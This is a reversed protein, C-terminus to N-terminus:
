HGEEQMAVALSDAGSQLAMKGVELAGHGYGDDKVVAMLSRLFGIKRGVQSVNHRIAGLDVLARTARVALKAPCVELRV